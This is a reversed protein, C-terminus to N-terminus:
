QFQIYKESTEEEKQNKKKQKQTRPLIDWQHQWVKRGYFKGFDKDPRSIRERLNEADDIAQRMFKDIKHTARGM